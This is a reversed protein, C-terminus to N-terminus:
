LTCHHHIVADREKLVYQIKMNLWSPQILFIFHIWIYQRKFDWKLFYAKRERSIYQLEVYSYICQRFMVYRSHFTRKAFESFWGKADYWAHNVLVPSLRRRPPFLFCRAYSYLHLVLRLSYITLSEIIYIEGHRKEKRRIRLNLYERRSKTTLCGSVTSVNCVRM